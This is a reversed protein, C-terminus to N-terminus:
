PFLRQTTWAADDSVRTFVIREHLRFPKESWFEILHPVIRFGSWYPPRPVSGIAYRAAYRAVNKELDYRTEMPRSQQSAWAGIQSDRHRSAYYADAEQASVQEARGQIRVQRGLPMWHFTMAAKPNALLEQGKRSEYNTYFVFGDPGHSKLLVMRLSPQGAADATAVAVATPEKIGCNQAEGYWEAFLEFPDRQELRSM